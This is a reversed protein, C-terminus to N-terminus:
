PWHRGLNKTSLASDGEPIFGELSHDAAFETSTDRTCAHLSEWPQLCPGTKSWYLPCIRCGPRRCSIVAPNLSIQQSNAKPFALDLLQVPAAGQIPAPKAVEGSSCLEQQAVVNM